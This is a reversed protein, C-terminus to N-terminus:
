AGEQSCIKVRSKEVEGRAESFIVCVVKILIRGSTLTIMLRSISEIKEIRKGVKVAPDPSQRRGYCDQIGAIGKSISARERRDM